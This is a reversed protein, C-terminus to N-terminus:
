NTKFITRTNNPNFNHSMLGLNSRGQHPRRMKKLPGYSLPQRSASPFWLDGTRTRSSAIRLPSSGVTIVRGINLHRRFSHFHYHPTLSIGEGKSQLGTFDHINTFPFGPLFFSYFFASRNSNGTAVM